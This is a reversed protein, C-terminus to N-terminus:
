KLKHNRNELGEREKLLVWLGMLLELLRVNKKYYEWNGFTKLNLFYPLKVQAQASREKDSTQANASFSGSGSYTGQVQTQATGGNKTGQASAVAEGNKVSTEAQSFSDDGEVGPLQM